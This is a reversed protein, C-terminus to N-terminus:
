VNTFKQSAATGSCNAQTIAAGSTITATKMCKGSAANIWHHSSSNYTWRQYSLGPSCRSVVLPVGAALSGGSPQLCAGTSHFRRLTGDPYTVWHGRNQGTASCPNHLKAAAGSTTSDQVCFATHNVVRLAGNTYSDSSRCSSTHNDWEPQMAFSGTNLTELYLNTWACKDGIEEGSSDAWATQGNVFPDTVSENYEHGGVISWGDDGNQVFNAGCNSGQDPIYPLNTWSLLQSGSYTTWNHYACYSSGFGGGPNTGSPSVVVIQTNNTISYGEGALFSAYADAVAALQADTASQPPDSCYVNETIFAHGAVTPFTPNGVQSGYYQSDVPSQFDTNTGVGSYFSALYNEADVGNGQQGTCTSAWWLGWYIVYIQPDVQTPGGFWELNTGQKNIVRPRFPVTIAPKGDKAVRPTLHIGVPVHHTTSASAVGASAAGLVCLVSAAGAVALCRVTRSFM